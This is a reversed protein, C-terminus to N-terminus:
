RNFLAKLKVLDLTWFIYVFFKIIGFKFIIFNILNIVKFRSISFKRCNFKFLLKAYEKKISIFLKDKNHKKGHSYPNSHNYIVTNKNTLNLKFNKQLYYAITAYDELAIVPNELKYSFSKDITRNILWSSHITHNENIFYDDCKISNKLNLNKISVSYIIYKKNQKYKHLMSSVHNKKWKDDVDLRFILDNKIKKLGKNLSRAPGLNTKNKILVIKKFKYKKKYKILLNKLNKPNKTDDVLVIEDPKYKQNSITKFYSNLFNESEYISTLISFKMM